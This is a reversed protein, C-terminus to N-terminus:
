SFTVLRETYFEGDYYVTILQTGSGYITVYVTKLDTEYSQDYLTEGSAMIMVQVSSRDTPLDLSLTHAVRIASSEEDHRSLVLDVIANEPVSTGGALSQRIVTGNSRSSTEETINGLTLGQAELAEAAQERTLGLIDPVSVTTVDGNISAYLKISSGDNVDTFAEPETSIVHGTAIIDSSQFEIICVLGAEELKLQATRYDLNSVNPVSVTKRGLSVTVVIETGPKVNRKSSPTQSIILGEAVTDSYVSEAVRINYESYDLSGLVDSINKNVIDPVEITEVTANDQLSFVNTIIFAAGGLFIAGTLVATLLYVFISTRRRPIYKGEVVKASKQNENVTNSSMETIRVSETAPVSSEPIVTAPTENQRAAAQEEHARIEAYSATAIPYGFVVNNDSQYRDLDHLIETANSYRMNAVPAMAHLVISELPAPIDGNVNRLPVPLSSVHQRIVDAPTKGNYPLRGTLMEYMMVGFSYIDSRTDITDGRAQEPSVYHVSGLADDAAISAGNPALQAIGFDTVRLSGDRLILINQPKIDRHIIGRAHAHELARAIQPAFHLFEMESLTGKQKMYDKLTIGDLLEMVIYELGETHSVDYVQVINPHQLMAVAQAETHFRRRFDDDHMFEEKLVKIAVDRNLLNCHARYVVAMGGTGINDLIEYRGDFTTGIFKDM